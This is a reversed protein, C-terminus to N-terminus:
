LAAVQLAELCGHVLPLEVVAELLDLQQLLLFDEEVVVAQDLWLQIQAVQALVEEARLEMGVKFCQALVQHRVPQVLYMQPLGPEVEVLL